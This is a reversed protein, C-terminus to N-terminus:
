RLLVLPWSRARKRAREGIRGEFKFGVHLWDIFVIETTGAEVM